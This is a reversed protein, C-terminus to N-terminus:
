LSQFLPPFSELIDLQWSFSFTIGGLKIKFFNETSIIISSIMLKMPSLTKFYLFQWKSFKVRSHIAELVTNEIYWPKTYITQWMFIRASFAQPHFSFIPWHSPPKQCIGARNIARQKIAWLMCLSRLYTTQTQTRVGWGVVMLNGALYETSLKREITHPYYHM